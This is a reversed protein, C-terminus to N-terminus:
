SPAMPASSAPSSSGAAAVVSRSSATNRRWPAFSSPREVRATIAGGIGTVDAADAAGIMKRSRSPEAVVTAAATAAAAASTAIEEIM